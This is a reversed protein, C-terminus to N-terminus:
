FLNMLFTNGVAGTRATPTQNVVRQGDNPNFVTVRQLTGSTEVIGPSYPLNDAAVHTNHESFTTNTVHNVDGLSLTSVPVTGNWTIPLGNYLRNPVQGQVVQQSYGSLKQNTAM